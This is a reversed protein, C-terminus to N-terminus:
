DRQLDRHQFVLAGASALVLITVVMVALNTTRLGHLAVTPKDYYYFVTFKQAAALKHVAPAMSSVLYSAFAVISALGITLSRKGSIAGVAYTLAGFVMTLLWCALCAQLLRSISMSGHITPFSLWVGLGIALCALGTILCGAWFRQWYVQQRSVPQSLLTELTGRNEDGVGIGIYLVIVMILTLMPMRMAFIQEDVYGPVTKYSAAQGLFGQLSKPLGNIVQDFGANKFYPFFAMTVFAMLALGICWALLFWRKDYITKTFVNNLM